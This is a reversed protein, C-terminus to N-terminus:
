LADDTVVIETRAQNPSHADLRGGNDIGSGWEEILQKMDSELRRMLDLDARSALSDIIRRAEAEVERGPDTVTVLITRRDHPPVSRTVLGDRELRDLLAGITTPHRHLVRCLHGTAVIGGAASCARALVDYRSFTMGIPRLMSDVRRMIIKQAHLVAAVLMPESPYPVDRDSHAPTSRATSM